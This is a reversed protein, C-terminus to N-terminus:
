NSSTIGPGQSPEQRKVVSIVSASFLGCLTLYLTEGRHYTDGFLLYLVIFAPLSGACLAVVIQDLLDSDNLITRGAVTTGAVALVGTVIGILGFRPSMVNTRGFLWILLVIMGAALSSALVIFIFTLAQESRHKLTRLLHEKKLVRLQEIVEAQNVKLSGNRIRLAKEFDKIARAPQNAAKYALGRVYYYQADYSVDQIARSIHAIADAFRGARYHALGLDWVSHKQKSLRKLMARDKDSLPPDKKSAIKTIESADGAMTSVLSHPRSNVQKLTPQPRLHKEDYLRTPQAKPRVEKATQKLVTIESDAVVASLDNITQTEVNQRLDSIDASLRELAERMERATQFRKDASQDIAKDLFATFASSIAHVYRQWLQKRTQLDSKMQAPHVGTLAYIATMGLSYLDNSFSHEGFKQQPSTFGPTGVVYASKINGEADLNATVIEKVAGFDILVVGGDRKRLIINKPNIDRHIVNFSHVCELAQLASKLVERVALEDMPGASVLTSLTKGEIYEQVIYLQGQAEFFEYFTPVQKCEDGLIELHKAEKEFNETIYKLASLNTESPQLRKLVRPRKNPSGLFEALVTVGCGGEGLKGIIRYRDLPSSM